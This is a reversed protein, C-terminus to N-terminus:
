TNKLLIPNISRYNPIFPQENEIVSCVVKILKNSINNIVVKKTKGEEIKRLFYHQFQKNHTRVSRAALHILKRLKSPGRRGSRANRKITKGSEHKNPAIRMYSCLQRATILKSFGETLVLINSIFLLGIGPISKLLDHYKKFTPNKSILEKIENETEKISGNLSKINGEILTNATPTQIVKRKLAKLANKCATCQVVFQERVSLLVKIQEIVEAKPEWYKLEDFFRYAYEAVQRSDVPDTKPGSVNFARKIKLPHDIAIKFGKLFLFYCLEEGYVGTSETCIVSNKPTVNHEKFWNTLKFFDKQTNEVIDKTILPKSPENFISVAHTESGIDIGIFNKIDM